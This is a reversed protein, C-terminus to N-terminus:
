KGDLSVTARPLAAFRGNNWALLPFAESADVPGFPHDVSGSKELQAHLLRAGLDFEARLPRLQSDFSYTLTSPLYGEPSRKGEGSVAYVNGGADTWIKTLAGGGKIARAACRRPFVIFRLPEDGGCSRCRYKDDIAPASGHPTWGDILALSSSEHENNNAGVLLLPRGQLTTRAITEIYGNSWYSGVLQGNRDLEFLVSPFDRSHIFSVYTTPRGSPGPVTFVRQPNWPGYYKQAGFTVTKSLSVPPLKETGDARLIYLAGDTAHSSVYTIFLVEDEGDGDIDTIKVKGGDRRDGAYYSDGDILGRFLHHGTEHGAADLIYLQDGMVKWDAPVVRPTRQTLPAPRWIVLGVGALVAIVLLAAVSRRKMATTDRATSPAQVTPAEQPKPSGQATWADLAKRSALVIDSKDGVRQIPLNYDKEWRQVTRVGKGFYGAIEKWGSLRDRDESNPDDSPHSM